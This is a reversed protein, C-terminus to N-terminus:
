LEVPLLRAIGIDGEGWGMGAHDSVEVHPRSPQQPCNSCGQVFLPALSSRGLVTQVRAGKQRRQRLAQTVLSM